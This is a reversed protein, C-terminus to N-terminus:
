RGAQDFLHGTPQDAKFYLKQINCAVHHFTDGFTLHNEDITLKDWLVDYLALVKKYHDIVDTVQGLMSYSYSLNCLWPQPKGGGDEDGLECKIALAQKWHEIAKKIDLEHCSNRLHGLCSGEQEQDGDEWAIALVQEWLEVAKETLGLKYHANGLHKLVSGEGKQDGFECKITLAQEWHDLAREFNRQCETSQFRFDKDQGWYFYVVGLTDLTEGEGARNGDECCFTLKQSRHEVAKKFQGVKLHLGGLHDLQVIELERDSCERTIVLAGEQGLDTYSNGLNGLANCLQSQDGLEQTIALAWEWLEVAKETLGLKYHVNGLNSLLDSEGKRDGTCRIALAQEWHDLAREFYRKRDAASVNQGGQGM